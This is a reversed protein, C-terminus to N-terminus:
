APRPPGASNPNANNGRNRCERVGERVRNHFLPPHDLRDM